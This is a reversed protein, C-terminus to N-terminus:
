ESIEKGLAKQYQRVAEAFGMLLADATIGHGISVEAVNPV